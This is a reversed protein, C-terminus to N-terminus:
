PPTVEGGLRRLTAFHEDMAQKAGGALTLGAANLVREMEEPAIHALGRQALVQCLIASPTM